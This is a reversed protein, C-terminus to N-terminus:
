YIRISESPNQSFSFANSQLSFCFANSQLSFCFANSQLSFCFADLQLSFSFANSQLSFYSANSQLSFCFLTLSFLFTFLTLSCLFTFLALRITMKRLIAVILLWQPQLLCNNRYCTQPLPRAAIGLRAQQILRQGAAGNRLTGLIAILRRLRGLLLEWILKSLRANVLPM